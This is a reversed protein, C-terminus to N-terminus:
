RVIAFKGVKDGVGSEVHFIYLGSSVKQNDKSLLDWDETGSHSEAGDHELTQVLNGALTYIRITCKEPLHTFQLKSYDASPEWRNRVLYPNPVVKIKSLDADSKSLATAKSTGFGYVDESTNPKNTTLRVVTGAAPATTEGSYDNFVLRGFARSATWDLFDLTEDYPDTTGYIGEGYDWANDADDDLIYISLRVDDSPDDPTYGIDWLEFPVRSTLKHLDTNLDFAVSGNETFRVEYDHDGLLEPHGWALRGLDQHGGTEDCYWDKTSNLSYWLNDGKHDEPKPDVPGEANRVEDVFKVGLSPGAVVVKLGDVIPYNDDGAQNYMKDLVTEGTDVNKLYWYIAGDDDAAFHVEYTDGTVSLPNAISITVSGDGSGATHEATVDVSPLAYDGADTRPVVAIGEIGNELSHPSTIQFDYATVDYYYTVGNTLNSDIYAYRLGSNEGESEEVRGVIRFIVNESPAPGTFSLVMGGFCLYCGDFYQAGTSDVMSNMENDFVEFSPPTDGTEYWHDAVSALPLDIGGLTVDSVSFTNDSNVRLLYEHGSFLGTGGYALIYGEVTGADYSVTGTWEGALRTIAASRPTFSTKDYEALLEWDGVLGTRSRWVRYGEFDQEKYKADYLLSTPDSTFVYYPDKSQEANNEWSIYVKKDGPVVTVEPHEPASPLIFNNDYITKAQDAVTQLAELTSGAVIAVVMSVTDGPALTFPGTSQFFRQDSPVEAEEFPNYEQLGTDPYNHGAMVLYKEIENNPDGAQLNFTKFATLGLVDGPAIDHTQVGHYDVTVSADIEGTALTDIIGNGNWDVYNTALPSELFTFGIYGPVHAWGPEFGDSDYAYGLNRSQDFGVLDDNATPGVDPDCVVGVYCNYITKGDPRANTVKYNVFIIDRNFSYNWSYSTQWVQVGLPGNDSNSGPGTDFRDSNMDDFSCYSDQLSVIKDLPWTAGELRNSIYLDTLPSFEETGGSTNYGIAVRPDIFPLSNIDYQNTYIAAEDNITGGVWIGAGFLYMEGSGRPWEGGADGLDTNGFVAYNTFPILINSLDLDKRSMTAYGSATKARPSSWYGSTKAQMIQPTFLLVAACFLVVLTVLICRSSFVARKM